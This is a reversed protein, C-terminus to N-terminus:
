PLRVATLKWSMLGERQFVLAIPNDSSGKKRASVAFQDFSEYGMHIEVDAESEKSQQAAAETARQTTPKEGKMMAAMAEPTVMADVMPGILAVAFAAGIAGFPNNDKAKAAEGFIMANLSAKLSERVAPYNVYRSVGASDKREAALRMNKVALYPTYYFWGSGIVVIAAVLWVKIKNTM